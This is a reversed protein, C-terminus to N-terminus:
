TSQKGKYFKDILGMAIHIVTIISFFQISKIFSMEVFYYSMLFMACFYIGFSIIPKM